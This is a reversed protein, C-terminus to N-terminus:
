RCSRPMSGTLIVYPPLSVCWIMYKALFVRPHKSESCASRSRETTGSCNGAGAEEVVLAAVATVAVSTMWEVMGLNGLAAQPQRLRSGGGGSGVFSGNGAMSDFMSMNSLKIRCNKAALANLM